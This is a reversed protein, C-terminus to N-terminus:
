TGKVCHTKIIGSFTFGLAVCSLSDHSSPRSHQRFLFAILFLFVPVFEVHSLTM